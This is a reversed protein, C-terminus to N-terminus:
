GNKRVDKVKIDMQTKGAKITLTQGIDYTNGLITLGNSGLIGKGDVTITISSYGERTTTVQQGKADVGFLISKGTKVDSVHGIVTSQIYDLVPDGNQIAAATFDNVLEAYFTIQVDETKNFLANSTGSRTYKYGVFAVALVVILVIVIDVVSVKGFLKGKSDIIM